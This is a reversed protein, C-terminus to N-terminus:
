RVTPLDNSVCPALAWPLRYVARPSTVCRGSFALFFFVCSPKVVAAVYFSKENERDRFNGHRLSSLPPHPNGLYLGILPPRLPHLTIFSSCRLVVLVGVRHSGIIACGEPSQLM